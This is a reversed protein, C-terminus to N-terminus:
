AWCLSDLRRTLNGNADYTFSTTYTTGTTYTTYGSFGAFGTGNNYLQSVDSSSLVRNWIGTEYKSM